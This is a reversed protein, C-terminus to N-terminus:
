LSSVPGTKKRRIMLTSASIHGTPTPFKAHEVVPGFDRHCRVLRRAGRNMGLSFVHQDANMVTVRNLKAAAKKRKILGRRISGPAPKSLDPIFGDRVKSRDMVTMIALHPGLPLFRCLPDMIARRPLVSSPNDSTIFPVKTANEIITWDLQYLRFATDLLSKTLM